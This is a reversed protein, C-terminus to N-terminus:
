ESKDLQWYPFYDEGSQAVKFQYLDHFRPLNFLEKLPRRHSKDITEQESPVYDFVRAQGLMIDPKRELIYNIDSRQHGPPETPYFQGFHAIEYDTLGLMDVIKHESYYGVAGIPALAITYNSPFTEKAWIGIKKWGSVWGTHESAADFDLRYGIAAIIVIILSAAPITMNLKKLWGSLRAALDAAMIAPIPLIPLYFRLWPFHDGGTWVVYVCPVILCAALVTTCRKPRRWIWMVFTILLLWNVGLEGTYIIGRFIRSLMPSGVKAYFTNPLLEGYYSFRGLFYIGFGAVLMASLLIPKILNRVSFKGPRFLIALVAIPWLLVTEWRTMATLVGLVATLTIAPWSDTGKVVVVLFGTVLCLLLPGEMGSFAWYSYGPYFTLIIPALWAFKKPWNHEIAVLGALLLTLYLGVASLTAGLIVSIIPIDFGLWGFGALIVTWLFNTYGEVKEDTNFVLGHGSALNKAYRFSIFADDVPQWKFIFAQCLMILILAALVVAALYSGGFDKKDIQYM